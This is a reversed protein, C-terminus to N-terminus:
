TLKMQCLLLVLMSLFKRVFTESFLIVHFLHLLMMYTVPNKALEESSIQEKSKELSRKLLGGGKEMIM